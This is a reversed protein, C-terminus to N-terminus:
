QRYTKASHGTRGCLQCTVRNNNNRRRNNNDRNNSYNNNNMDSNTRQQVYNSQKGKVSVNAVVPQSDRGNEQGLFNTEFDELKDSLEEFTISSDRARIVTAISSRLFVMLFM